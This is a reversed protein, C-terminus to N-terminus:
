GGTLNASAVLLAESELEVANVSCCSSQVVTVPGLYEGGCSPIRRGPTQMAGTCLRKLTGVGVPTGPLNDWPTYILLLDACHEALDHFNSVLVSAILSASLM